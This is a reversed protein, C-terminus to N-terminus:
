SIPNSHASSSQLGCDLFDIKLAHLIQWHSCLTLMRTYNLWFDIGSKTFERFYVIQRAFIKKMAVKQTIYLICTSYYLLRAWLKSIYIYILPIAQTCIPLIMSHIGKYELIMYLMIKVNPLINITFLLPFIRRSVSSINANTVQQKSSIQTIARNVCTAIM